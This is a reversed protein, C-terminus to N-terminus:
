LMLSPKCIHQVTITAASAVIRQGGAAPIVLADVHLKSVDRVDVLYLEELLAEGKYKDQEERKLPRLLRGNSGKIDATTESIIQQTPTLSSPRSAFLMNTSVGWIFSPLVTVLDFQPNTDKILQWASQEALTKSAAYKTFLPAEKGQEEV